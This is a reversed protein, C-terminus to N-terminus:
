RQTIFLLHSVFCLRFHSAVLSPVVRSPVPSLEPVKPNREGQSVVQTPTAPPLTADDGALSSLHAHGVTRSVLRLMPTM